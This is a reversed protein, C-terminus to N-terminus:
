LRWEATGAATNLNRENGDLFILSVVLERQATKLGKVTHQSSGGWCPPYNATRGGPGNSVPM